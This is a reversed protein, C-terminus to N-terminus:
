CCPNFNNVDSYADYQRLDAIISPPNGAINAAQTLYVTYVGPIGSTSIDGIATAFCTFIQVISDTLQSDCSVQELFANLMKFFQKLQPNSFNFPSRLDGFGEFVQIIIQKYVDVVKDQNEKRIICLTKSMQSKLKNRQTKLINTFIFDDNGVFSGAYFWASEFYADLLGVTCCPTKKAVQGYTYNM